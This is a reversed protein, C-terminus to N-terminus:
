ISCFLTWHSRQYELYFYWQYVSFYLSLFITQWMSVQWQEFKKQKKKSAQFSEYLMRMKSFGLFFSRIRHELNPKEVYAALIASLILDAAGTGAVLFTFRNWGTEDIGM